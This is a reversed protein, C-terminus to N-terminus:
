RENIQLVNQVNSSRVLELAARLRSRRSAHLAPELKTAQFIHKIQTTKIKLANFMTAAMIMQMDIRLDV